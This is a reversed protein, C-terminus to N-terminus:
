LDAAKGVCLMHEAPLGIAGLDFEPGTPMDAPARTILLLWRGGWDRLPPKPVANM